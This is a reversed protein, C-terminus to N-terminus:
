VMEQIQMHFSMLSQFIKYQRANSEIRELSIPSHFSDHEKRQDESPLSHGTTPGRTLIKGGFDGKGLKLLRKQGMVYMHIHVYVFM